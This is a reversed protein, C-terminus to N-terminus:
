VITKALRSRMAPLVPSRSPRLHVSMPPRTMKPHPDNAHECTFVAPANIAIRATWPSPAANMMGLVSEIRVLTNPSGSSRARAIEM